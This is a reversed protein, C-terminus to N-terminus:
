DTRRGAEMSACALSWSRVRSGTCIKECSRVLFCKRRTGCIVRSPSALALLPTWRCAEACSAYSSMLPVKIIVILLSAIPLSNEHGRTAVVHLPTANSGLEGRSAEAGISLLYRALQYNEDTYVTKGWAASDYTM